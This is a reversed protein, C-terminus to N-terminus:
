AMIRIIVNDTIVSLPAWQIVNFNNNKKAHKGDIACQAIILKLPNQHPNALDRTLTVHNM